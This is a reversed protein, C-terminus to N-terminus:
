SSWSTFESPFLWSIYFNLTLDYCILNPGWGIVPTRIPLDHSFLCCDLFSAMHHHFCLNSRHMQFGLFALVAPLWIFSPCSLSTDKELAKLSLRARKFASQSVICKQQKLLVTESWKNQCGKSVLVCIFVYVSSKYLVVVNCLM